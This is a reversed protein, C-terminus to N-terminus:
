ELFQRYAHVYTTFCLCNIKFYGACQLCLCRYMAM